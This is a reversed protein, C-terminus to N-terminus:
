FLFGFRGAITVGETMVGPLVENARGALNLAEAGIRIRSTLQWDAMVGVTFWDRLRTATLSGDADRSYINRVGRWDARATLSLQEVPSVGLEASGVWRPRDLGNFFGRSGKQPTYALNLEVKATRSHSWALRGSIEGGHLSCGSANDLLLGSGAEGGTMLAVPYWGELPLHDVAKWRIQLGGELGRLFGEAPGGNFGLAADVPSFVPATSMQCPNAWLTMDSRTAVTNLESGGGVTLYWTFHSSPIYVMCSPAIHFDSFGDYEDGAKVSFDLEAGLRIRAASVPFEFAPTLRLLGYDRDYGTLVANVDAAVEWACKRYPEDLDGNVTFRRPASLRVDGGVYGGLAIVTEWGPAMMTTYQGWPLLQDRYAAHRVSLEVSHRLRARASSTLSVKGSVDNLTQTPNGPAMYYNFYALRYDVEAAIVSGGPLRYSGNLGIREDYRFRKPFRDGSESKQRWLSTSNHDIWIGAQWRSSTPFFSYGADMRTNLWSGAALDFYGRYPNEPLSPGLPFLSPRFDMSAPSLDYELSMRPMTYGPSLPYASLRDMRMIEAVYRGDVSISQDLVNQAGAWLPWLLCGAACLRALPSFSPLYPNTTM